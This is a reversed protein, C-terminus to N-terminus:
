RWSPTYRLVKSGGISIDLFKIFCKFIEAALQVMVSVVLSGITRAIIHLKKILNIGRLFNKFNLVIDCIFIQEM